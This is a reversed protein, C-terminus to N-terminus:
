IKQIDDLSSGFDSLADGSLDKQANDISKLDKGVSDVVVDSTAGVAPQQVKTISKSAPKCAVFSILMVVLILFLLKKM